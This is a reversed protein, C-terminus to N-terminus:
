RTLRHRGLADLLRRAIIEHGVANPHMDDIYLPDPRPLTFDPTLDVLTVSRRAAVRRVVDAYRAFISQRLTAVFERHADGFAGRLQHCRALMFRAESFRPFEALTRSLIATAEAVNGAELRAKAADRAALAEAPMPLPEDEALSPEYAYPSTPLILFVAQVRHAMSLDALRELGREYEALSVRRTSAGPSGYRAPAVPTKGFVRARVQWAQRQLFYWLMSRNLTQRLTVLPSDFRRAKEVDSVGQDTDQDNIGFLVTVADPRCALLERELQV